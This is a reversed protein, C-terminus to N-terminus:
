PARGATTTTWEITATHDTVVLAGPARCALELGPETLSLTAFPRRGPRFEAPRGDVALTAALGAHFRYAIGDMVTPRDKVSLRFDDRQVDLLSMGPYLKGGDELEFDSGSFTFNAGHAGTPPEAVRVEWGPATAFERIAAERQAAAKALRDRCEAVLRQYGLLENMAAAVRTSVEGPDVPYAEQMVAFLTRGETVERKWRPLGARDLLWGQASGTEYYRTFAMRDRDLTMELREIINHLGSGAGGAHAFVPRAALRQQVYDATGESRELADEIGRVPPALRANRTSRLAVFMRAYRTSGEPGPAKLAEALARQEMTALAMNEPDVAGYTNDRHDDSFHAHQFVHFREHALTTLRQFTDEGPTFVLVFTPRGGLAYDTYYDSQLEPLEGDRALIPPPGKTFRTFGAPPAPHAVLYSRHGARDYLLVPQAFLTFGPWVPDAHLSTEATLALHLLPDLVPAAAAAAALLCAAAGPIVGRRGM